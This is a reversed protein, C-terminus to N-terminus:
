KSDYLFKSDVFEKFKVQILKRSRIDQAASKPSYDKIAQEFMDIIENIEANIRKQIYLIYFVMQDTVKYGDLMGKLAYTSKIEFYKKVQSPSDAISLNGDGFVEDYYQDFIQKKRNSAQHPNGLLSFLIQGFREMSIQYKYVRNQTLGIDGSKRSYLIEHEGLYQELQIQEPRLSKLDISSISNQSNTHEAIKNNLAQDNTTKFIRVLVQSESLYNVINESDLKHFNHITRLTQGGNIVQFSTLKLKVRKNANIPKADIDESIITLGNNYMFFKSPEIKLTRLINENYKSRTVFGRVNDFLVSYDLDVDKLDKVDELNYQTRLRENNCTIRIVENLPLRIIYSKSSSISDESFSMIADNDLTLEANISEPRISMYQSIQALGIPVIKLGYNEELNKIDQNSEKLVLNENSVVYLYLRWEDSSNLKEIILSAFDKLKGELKNINETTLANIFKTSIFPSNLSQSKSGDFKERYKFNFLSICFKDEDIHIADIGCDDTKSNGLVLCNFESDTILDVTDLVDQTGCINKLILVYFGIREKQKINSIERKHQLSNLLLDAYKESRKAILKFDNINPM